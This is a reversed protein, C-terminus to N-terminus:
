RDSRSTAAGLVKPPKPEEPTPVPALEGGGDRGLCYLLHVTNLRTEWCWGCKPCHAAKDDRCNVCRGDDDAQFYTRV